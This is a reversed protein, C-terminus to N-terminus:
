KEKETRAFDLKRSHLSLHGRDDPHPNVMIDLYMIVHQKLSLRLLFHKLKSHIFNELWFIDMVMNDETKFSPYHRNKFAQYVTTM